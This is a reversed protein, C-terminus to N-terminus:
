LTTLAPHRAFSLILYERWGLGGVLQATLSYVKEYDKDTFTDARRLITAWRDASTAMLSGAIEDFKVWTENNFKQGARTLGNIIGFLNRNGAEYEGYQNLFETAEKKSLFTTTHQHPFSPNGESLYWGQHSTM